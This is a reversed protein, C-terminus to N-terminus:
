RGSSPEGSPSAGAPSPEAYGWWATLGEAHATEAAAQAAAATEFVGFVAAGSGSLAAYRAGAGELMAKAQTIVPYRALIPPEFDNTLEHRWRDPDNSRIAAALDPRPRDDPTVMGYAEATAVRADPMVVALPFPMRYGVLPTLVEGRGTALAPAGDLFFPVDSGLGAALRHLEAPSIKLRWHAALLRLAHAADSSGGGLGAGHPLRKVLGLAGHPEIGAWAALSRAARVCLNEEGVLEPDSCTFSFAEASTVALEDHWGIALLGTEVDHFGDPRRRLVRLGLNVKAPCRARRDALPQPHTM